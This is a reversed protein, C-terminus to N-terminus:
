VATDICLVGFDETSQLKSNFFVPKKFGYVKRGAIGYRNNYDDKEEDWGPMGIGTPDAFGLAQAGCFLIRQGKVDGDGGWTSPHFVNRYEFINMGDIRIGNVGGHPTGAFIPNATGRERADKWMAIFDADQKLAAMGDISLFVNFSEVGNNTRNPKLWTNMAHAKAQVFMKWTPKDAPDVQTTDGPQIGNTADWRVHRNATPATVDGAYELMPLQSGLRATGDTNFNYGIGSLTLFALEDMTQQHANAIQDKANTRFDVVSKQDAMRGTNAVPFRLQDFQIVNDDAGMATENGKAQNDGVIGDGRIDNVLTIVCRNGTKTSKLETIRQIMSDASNGVFPIVFSRNRAEAWTRRAWVTYQEDTMSAFDTLAM